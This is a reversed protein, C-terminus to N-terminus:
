VHLERKVYEVVNDEDIGISEFKHLIDFLEASDNDVKFMFDLRVNENIIAGVVHVECEDHNSPLKNYPRIDKADMEQKKFKELLEEVKSTLLKNM